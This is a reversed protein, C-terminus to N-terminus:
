SLNEDSHVVEQGPSVDGIPSSTSPQLARVTATALHAFAAGQASQVHTVVQLPAALRERLPRVVVGTQPPPPLNAPWLGVADHRAISRLMGAIGDSEDVSAHLRTPRADDDQLWFERFARGASAPPNFRLQARVDELEVIEEEALPHRAVMLAAVPSHALTTVVAETDVYPGRALVVDVIREHVIPLVQSVTTPVLILEVHPFAARYAQLVPWTWHEVADHSLGVRLRDSRFPRPSLDRAREVVTDVAALAAAATPLLAAGEATLTTGSRDRAFLRVKLSRELAAIQASLAPQSIALRAAARRVNMVEAVALFARLQDITMDPLRSITAWADM